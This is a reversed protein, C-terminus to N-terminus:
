ESMIGIKFSPNGNKQYMFGYYKYQLTVVDATTRGINGEPTTIVLNLKKIFGNEYFESTAFDMTIQVRELDTQIKALEQRSTQHSVKLIVENDQITCITPLEKPSCALFYFSSIIFLLPRYM